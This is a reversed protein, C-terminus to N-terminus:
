QPARREMALEAAALDELATGVSKFLTIARDDSRGPVRGTVLDALEGRIDGSTIAGESIAQLIDGAESQAGARTDVYVQARKLAAGDVERM